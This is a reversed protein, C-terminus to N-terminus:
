VKKLAEKKLRSFHVSTIGLYSAIMHQPVRQHIDPFIHQINDYREKPSKTYINKIRLDQYMYWGEAIYRALRNGEPLNEYAWLISKKPLVVIESDELAQIYYDTEAGTLLSSFDTVFQNEFAFHLSVENGKQDVIMARILGKNVFYVEDSAKGPTAILEKKRINRLEYDRSSIVANEDSIEIMTNLYDFVQKFEPALM